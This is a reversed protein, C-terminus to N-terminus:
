PPHKYSHFIISFILIYIYFKIDLGPVEKVPAAVMPPSVNAYLEVIEDEEANEALGDEKELV